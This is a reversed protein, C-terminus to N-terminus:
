LSVSFSLQAQFLYKRFLHKGYSKNNCNERFLVVISCMTFSAHEMSFLINQPPFRTGHFFAREMSSPVNWPLFLTRHFHFFMGPLFLIQSHLDPCSICGAGGSSHMYAIQAGSQILKQDCLMLSTGKHNTDLIRILSSIYLPSRLNNVTCQFFGAQLMVLPRVFVAAISGIYLALPDFGANIHLIGSFQDFFSFCIIAKAILLSKRGKLRFYHFPFLNGYVVLM